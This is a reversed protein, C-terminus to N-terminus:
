RLSELIGSDQMDRFIQEGISSPGMTDLTEKTLPYRYVRQYESSSVIIKRKSVPTLSLLGPTYELNHEILSHPIQIIYKCGAEAARIALITTIDDDSTRAPIATISVRYNNDHMRDYVYNVLQFSAQQWFQNNSQERNKPYALDVDYRVMLACNQTINEATALPIEKSPPLTSCSALLSFIPLTLLLRM